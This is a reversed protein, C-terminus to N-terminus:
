AFFLFVPGLPFYLFCKIQIEVLSLGTTSLMSYIAQLGTYLHRGPQVQRYIFFFQFQVSLSIYIYIDITIDAKGTLSQKHKNTQLPTALHPLRLPVFTGRGLSIQM